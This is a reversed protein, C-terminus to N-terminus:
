DFMPQEKVCCLPITCLDVAQMCVRVIVGVGARVSVKDARVDSVFHWTRHTM